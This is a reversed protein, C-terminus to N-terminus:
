DIDSPCKRLYFHRKETLVKPLDLKQGTYSFYHEVEAMGLILSQLVEPLVPWIMELNETSHRFNSFIEFTALCQEKTLDKAPDKKDKQGRRCTSCPDTNPVWFKM